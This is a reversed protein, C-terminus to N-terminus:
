VANLGAFTRRAWLHLIDTALAVVFHAQPPAVRDPAFLASM